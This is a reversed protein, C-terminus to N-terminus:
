VRLRKAVKFFFNWFIEFFFRFTRYRCAATKEVSVFFVPFSPCDFAFPSVGSFNNREPCLILRSFDERSFNKLSLKERQRCRIKGISTYLLCPYYDPFLNNVYIILKLNYDKIAVDIQDKIFAYEEYSIWFEDDEEMELLASALKRKIVKNFGLIDKKASSDSELLPLTSLNNLFNTSFGKYVVLKM